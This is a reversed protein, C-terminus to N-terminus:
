ILMTPAERPSTMKVLQLSLSVVPTESFHKFSSSVQRVIVSRNYM